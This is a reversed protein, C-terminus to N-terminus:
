RLHRVPLADTVAASHEDALSSPSTRPPLLLDITPSRPSFNVRLRASMRPDIRAPM